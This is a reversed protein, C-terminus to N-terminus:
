LLGVRLLSAVRAMIALLVCVNFSGVRVCAIVDTRCADGDVDLADGLLIPHSLLRVLKASFSVGM